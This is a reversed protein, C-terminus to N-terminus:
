RGESRMARSTAPTRGAKLGKAQPSLMQIVGGAVMAAGMQVAWAQGFYTGAMILVVGIITQIIGGRKRGTLIPAVRIDGKGPFHLESEGINQKGILVAFELGREKSRLMYQEFGPILVSLARMAEAPTQVALRHVRGFLRGLEGYLRITRLPTYEIVSASM